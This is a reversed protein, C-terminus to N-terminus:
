ALPDLPRPCGWRSRSCPGQQVQPVIAYSRAPRRSVLLAVPVLPGAVLRLRALAYSGRARPLGTSHPLTTTRRPRGADRRPPHLRSRAVHSGPPEELRVPRLPTPAHRRPEGCQRCPPAHHARQEDTPFAPQPALPGPLSPTLPCRLSTAPRRPVMGTVGQEWFPPAHHSPPPAALESRSISSWGATHTHIGVRGAWKATGHMPHRRPVDRAARQGRPPRLRPRLAISAHRPNPRRRRRRSRRRRSSPTDRACASAHIFLQARCVWSGM